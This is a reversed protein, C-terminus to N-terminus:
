FRLEARSEACQMTTTSTVDAMWGRTTNETSSTAATESRADAQAESGVGVGM